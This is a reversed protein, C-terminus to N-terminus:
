QQNTTTMSPVSNMRSFMHSHPSTAVPQSPLNPPTLTRLSDFSQPITPKSNYEFYDTIASPLESYTPLNRLAQLLASQERI